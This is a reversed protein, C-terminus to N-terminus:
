IVMVFLILPNQFTANMVFSYILILACKPTVKAVPTAPNQANHEWRTTVQTYLKLFM